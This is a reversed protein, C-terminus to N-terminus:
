WAQRFCIRSRRKASIEHYTGLVAFNAPSYERSVIRGKGQWPVEKGDPGIVNLDVFEDGELRSVFISEASRTYISLVVIVPEGKKFLQAQPRAGFCLADCLTAPTAPAQGHMPIALVSSSFLFLSTIACWRNPRTMCINSVPFQGNRATLERNTVCESVQFGYPLTRRKGPATRNVCDFLLQLLWDEKHFIVAANPRGTWQVTEGPLLESSFLDFPLPTTVHGAASASEKGEKGSRFRKPFGPFISAHREAGEQSPAGTSLEDIGQTSSNWYKERMEM